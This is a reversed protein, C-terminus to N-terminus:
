LYQKLLINISMLFCVAVVIPKILTTGKEIVMKAGMTAGIFQGGMMIIGIMWVIDGFVIFYSLSSINSVFNLVKANATAKPLSYGLLLVFSLAMFSGTGPGFFGDYFGVFPAILVSFVVLSIVKKKDV